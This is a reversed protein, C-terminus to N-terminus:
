LCCKWICKKLFCVQIEISIEIFTTESQEILLIVVKTWIIAQCRVSLLSNVSTTSAYYQRVYAGSPRMLELTSPWINVSYFPRRKVPLM